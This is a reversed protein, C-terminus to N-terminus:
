KVLLLKYEFRVITIDFFQKIKIVQMSVIGFFAFCCKFSLFFAAECTVYCSQM